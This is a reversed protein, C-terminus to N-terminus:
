VKKNFIVNFYFLVTKDNVNLEPISLLLSVAQEDENEVALMLSTTDFM